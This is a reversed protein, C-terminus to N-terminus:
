QQGLRRKNMAERAKESATKNAQLKGKVRAGSQDFRVKKKKKKKGAYLGEPDKSMEKGQTFKAADGSKRMKAALRAMEAKREDAITPM